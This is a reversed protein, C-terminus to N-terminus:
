ESSLGVLDLVLVPPGEPPVVAGVFGRWRDLPPPLPQITARWVAGIGEVLFARRPDRLLVAGGTLGEPLALARALSSMPWRVAGHDVWAERGQQFIEPASLVVEVRSEQVAFRQGSCRIERLSVMSRSAPLRLRFLTGRGQRTQVQLTGGLGTVTQGIADMGIGRGALAGVEERTTLGPLAMLRVLDSRALRRAEERALLNLAVAREVLWDPNIGAGDDALEIVIEDRIRRCRIAVMGTGAKGQAKRAEPSELGHEVANRVLHTLAVDIGEIMARDLPQDGGEVRLVARKGVQRALDRVVRRLPDTLTALPLRRTARADRELETVVRRLETLTHAGPTQVERELALALASITELRGLVEDLWEVRVRVTRGPRPARLIAAPDPRRPEEAEAPELEGTFFLDELSSAADGHGLYLVAWEPFLTIFERVVEPSFETRLALRLPGDLQGARLLEPSPVCDVVEGLAQLRQRMLYGRLGPPGLTAALKLEVVMDDPARQLTPTPLEHRVPQPAMSTQLLLGIRGHLERAAHDAKPEQGAEVDSTWQVLRDVGALLLDVTPPDLQRRGSRLRDMLEELEHALDFVPSFGMTGSMGKISHFLRFATNVQERDEPASELAVLSRSLTELIEQTETVYLTRYKSLDM